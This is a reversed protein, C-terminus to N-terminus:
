TAEARAVATERYEFGAAHADGLEDHSAGPRSCVSLCRSLGFNKSGIGSDPVLLHGLRACRDVVFCCTYRNANVQKKAINEKAGRM